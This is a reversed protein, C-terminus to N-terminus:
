HKNQRIKSRQLMNNMQLKEYTPLCIVTTAMLSTTVKSSLTEGGGYHFGTEDLETGLDVSGFM